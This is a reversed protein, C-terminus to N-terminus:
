TNLPSCFGASELLYHRYCCPPDQSQVHWTKWLMSTSHWLIHYYIIILSTTLNIWRGLDVNFSEAKRFMRSMKLVASVDWQTLGKGQFSTAGWFMWAMNTVASTNWQGLDCNFNIASVFVGNMNTVAGVDWNELGQGQFSKAGWFMHTMDTVFATNWHTLDGNFSLANYFMWSMDTVASVDWHSLDCNFKTLEYFLKSLNPTKITPARGTIKQLKTFPQFIQSDIIDLKRVFIEMVETPNKVDHINLDKAGIHTGDKYIIIVQGLYDKVVTQLVKPIKM